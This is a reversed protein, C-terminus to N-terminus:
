TSLTICQSPYTFFVRACLVHATRPSLMLFDFTTVSLGGYKPGSPRTAADGAYGYCRTLLDLEIFDSHTFLIPSLKM